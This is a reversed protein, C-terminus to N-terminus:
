KESLEDVMAGIAREANGYKEYASPVPLKLIEERTRGAKLEGGIWERMREFYEIQGRLGGVDTLEGHGPVVRTKADCLEIIQRLAAIWGLTTAKAGRDIVPHRGMFLLDGTHIVNAAPVRVIVDNDTHAPGLHRLMVEVGGIDLTKVGAFSATPMFDKESITALREKIARVDARVGDAEPGTRDGIMREADRLGGVYREVQGKIRALAAEHAVIPAAGAFAHNGGTHDAHHHTNIVQTLPTGLAEAERRLVLGLPSLKCDVLAAASKGRIVM